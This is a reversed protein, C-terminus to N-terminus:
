LREVLGANTTVAKATQQPQGVALATVVFGLNGASVPRPDDIGAGSIRECLYRLTDRHETFIVLKRRRGESDFM